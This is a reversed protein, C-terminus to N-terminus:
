NLLIISILIIYLIDRVNNCANFYYVNKQYLETTVPCELLIHKFSLINKCICTVNQPYKTNWTDTIPTPM